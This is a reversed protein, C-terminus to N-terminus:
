AEPVAVLDQWAEQALRSAKPRSQSSCIWPCTVLYFATSTSPGCACDILPGCSFGISPDCVYGTSPDDRFPRRCPHRGLPRLSHVLPLPLCPCTLTILNKEM